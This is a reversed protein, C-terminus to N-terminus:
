FLLTGPPLSRNGQLGGSHIILLKSGTPFYGRNLLDEVAFFLKGTYVIDTPINQREWFDNMYDILTQPHKAYGGFHYDHLVHWKKHQETETLLGAVAETLGSNKKLVSIGTLTQHTAMGKILGAMMTGTGAACIIDTYKETDATHLLTAAGRAGTEGYGGEPIWYWGPEQYQEKL